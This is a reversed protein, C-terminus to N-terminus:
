PRGKARHLRTIRGDQHITYTTRGLIDDYFDVRRSFKMKNMESSFAVALLELEETTCPDVVPKMLDRGSRDKGALREGSRDKGALREGAQGYFLVPHPAASTDFLIGVPHRKMVERAGAHRMVRAKLAQAEDIQSSTVILSSCGCFWWAQVTVFVAVVTAITFSKRGSTKMDSTLPLYGRM